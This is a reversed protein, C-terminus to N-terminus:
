NVRVQLPQMDFLHHDYFLRYIVRNEDDEINICSCQGIETNSSSHSLYLGKDINTVILGWETAKLYSLFYINM